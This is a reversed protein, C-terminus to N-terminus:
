ISLDRMAKERSARRRLIQYDLGYKGAGMFFISLFGLLYMLAKESEQFYSSGEAVPWSLHAAVAVIFTMTLLAAMPRTLFGFIIFIPAIFEAFAAMFGWFAPMFDLGVLAANGGVKAWTEPGGTIKGYGHTMCFASLTVRLLLIGLDKHRDLGNLIM